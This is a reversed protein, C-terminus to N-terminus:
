CQPAKFDEELGVTMLDDEARTLVLGTREEADIAEVRFEGPKVTGVMGDMYKFLFERLGDAVAM